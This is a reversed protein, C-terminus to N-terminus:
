HSQFWTLGPRNVTTAFVEVGKFSARGTKEDGDLFCVCEFQATASGREAVFKRVLETPPMTKRGMVTVLPFQINADFARCVLETCVLKDTSFFDFDFDYPKGLHSFARAIAERVEAESVRPRLAAASDAVGICRELTTIRVGEPVAELIVNEHGRPDRSAFETWHKRVRLDDALGLRVLDNTTGVYIAAHAWFGPMFARSLYWNQREVLIDGPKLRSRFDALQEQGIMPKGQRPLRIRTGGLWTSVFAQGRYTLDKSASSAGKMPDVLGAELAVKPVADKSTVHRRVAAHPQAYATPQVLGHRGFALELERYKKLSNDMFERTQAHIINAKVTNYVGAPVDWLPEPENLKRQANPADRFRTVLKVSADHLGCASAFAILFSRLRMREDRIQDHKQYKWILSLLATRHTLYKLLLQRIADDDAQTYFSRAGSDFETQIRAARVELEILGKLNEGLLREDQDLMSELAPASLRGLAPAARALEPIPNPQFLWRGWLVAGVILAAATGFRLSKWAFRRWSFSSVPVSDHPRLAAYEDGADRLQEGLARRESRLTELSVPSFLLFIERWWVGSTDRVRWWYKLALLGAVPMPILWAWAVWPLFYRAMCWWVLGYWAFYIPLGIALRSLAIISRGSQMLRAIGRVVLFPILHHLTGVLVFLFGIDMLVAEWGLRLSLRWGQFHLVNARPALKLEALRARFDGARKALAQARPRDVTWFHNMADAIRKRQMVRAVPTARAPPHFAELTDLLPEWDPESLHIVAAKLRQDIESTLLRVQQRAEAPNQERWKRVAIPEGVKVWIASRFREKREYNIGLPVIVLESAGADMGQLAMRAAGTRVQELKLLDHSKGEPFIGVAEGKTLFGAAKSLSQANRGVQSADDIARFAPVMGLAFLVRGFVPIQFLPAKALFHVPRGAVIGIVVPDILSNAHNAVFLVPGNSPIRTTGSIEIRSYYLRVLRRVARRALSGIWNGLQAM